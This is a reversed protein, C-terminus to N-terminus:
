QNEKWHTICDSECVRKYSMLDYDSKEEVVEKVFEEIFISGDVCVVGTIEETGRMVDIVIGTPVPFHDCNFMQSLISILQNSNMM